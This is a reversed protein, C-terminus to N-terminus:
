TCVTEKESTEDETKIGYTARYKYPTLGTARVFARHFAPNSRYGIRFAIESTNLDTESLLRKADEIRYYQVFDLFSSDFGENFLRSLYTRNLSLVETIDMLKFDPSRYPRKEEMWRVITEKYQPINSSFLKKEKDTVFITVEPYLKKENEAYLVEAEADDFTNRFYDEPYPNKHFVGKLTIFSFFISVVALHILIPVLGTVSLVVYFIVSMLLVWFGYIKTWNLDIRGLEAYNNECWKRYKGEYRYIIYFFLGLYAASSLILVFRFWVNFYAINRFFDAINNFREIEQGILFLIGHYLLIVLLMPISIKLLKIWSLWGPRLLEILYTMTIIIFVNGIEIIFPFFVGRSAVIAVDTLRKWALYGYGLGWLFMIVGLIIRSRSREPHFLLMVAGLMCIGATFTTLIAILNNM